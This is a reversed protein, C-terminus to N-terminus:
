YAARHVEAQRGRDRGVRHLPPLRAARRPVPRPRVVPRGGADDAGPLLPRHRRRRRGVAEDERPRRLGLPRQPGQEAGRQRAGDRGRLGEDQLPHRGEGDEAGPRGVGERADPGGQPGPRRLEEGREAQGGEPADPRPRHVRRLHDQQPLREAQDEGGGPAQAARVDGPAEVRGAQYDGLETLCKGGELMAEFAIPRDGYDFEFDVLLANAQTLLRKKALTTWAPVKAHDIMVRPLELRADM